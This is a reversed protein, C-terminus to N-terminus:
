GTVVMSNSGTGLTKVNEGQVGGYLYTNELPECNINM